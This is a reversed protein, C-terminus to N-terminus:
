NKNFTAGLFLIYMTFHYQQFIYVLCGVAYPPVERIIAGHCYAAPRMRRSLAAQRGFPLLRKAAGIPLHRGAQSEPALDAPHFNEPAFGSNFIGPRGM